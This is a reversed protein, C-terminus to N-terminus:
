KIYPKIIEFKDKPLIRTYGWDWFRFFTSDYEEIDDYDVNSIKEHEYCMNNYEEIAKLIKIRQRYTVENKILMVICLVMLVLMVLVFIAIGIEKM